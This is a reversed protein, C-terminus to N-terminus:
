LTIITEDSHNILVHEMYNKLSRSAVKAKEQLKLIVDPDLYVEKRKKGGVAAAPFTPKTLDDLSKSKRKLRIKM